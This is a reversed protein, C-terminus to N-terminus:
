KWLTETVEDAWRIICDIPDFLVAVVKDCWRLPQRYILLWYTCSRNAPAAGKAFNMIKPSITAGIDDSVVTESDFWLFPFLDTLYDFRCQFSSRSSEIVPYMYDYICHVGTFYMIAWM